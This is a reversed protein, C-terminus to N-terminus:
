KNEGYAHRIGKYYLCNIGLEMCKVAMEYM